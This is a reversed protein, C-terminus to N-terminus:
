SGVAEVGGCKGTSRALGAVPGDRRRLDSDEGGVSEQWDHQSLVRADNASWKKPGIERGVRQCSEAAVWAIWM